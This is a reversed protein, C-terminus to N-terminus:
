FPSSYLDLGGQVGLSSYENAARSIVYENKDMDTLKDFTIKGTVM